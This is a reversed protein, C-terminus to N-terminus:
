MKYRLFSNLNKPPSDYEHHFTEHILYSVNSYKNGRIIIKIKKTTTQKNEQSNIKKMIPKMTNKGQYM